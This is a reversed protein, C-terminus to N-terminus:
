LSGRKRFLLVVFFPAGILSMMIGVPIETPSLLVRGLLDALVSLTGGLFVSSVLLRRTRNGVFARAVHPVILGVFGLLGAFSVAAAALASACLVCLLRLPRVKIGMGHAMDAGMVLLDIRSGLLFAGTFALGAIVAPVLLEVYRAGSFGGISFSNYSVLLDTDIMTAASILANLLATVAIGSLVVAARGGGARSAIAVVALTTLFAFVLAFLPSLAVGAAPLIAFALVVGIGAGANVGIVNPSALANDTVSQLLVGAAALAAGALIGALVRPLRVSYLITVNPNGKGGVGFLAKFFDGTTMKASGFRMALVAAILLVAALVIYGGASRLFGGVDRKKKEKVKQEKQGKDIKKKGM